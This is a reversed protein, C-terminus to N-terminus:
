IYFCYFVATTPIQRYLNCQAELTPTYFIWKHEISVSNNCNRVIIVRMKPLESIIAIIENAKKTKYVRDQDQMHILLAPYEDIILLQQESSIGNQRSITFAEYYQKIGDYAEDGSYYNRYFDLFRFDESNKFDCFTIAVNGEKIRVGLLNLLGYSKGSGTGGCLLLM